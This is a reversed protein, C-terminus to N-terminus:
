GSRCASVRHRSGIQYLLLWGYSCSGRALRPVDHSESGHHYDGIMERRNWCDGHATRQGGTTRIANADSLAGRVRAHIVRM